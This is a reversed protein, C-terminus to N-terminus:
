VPIGQGQCACPLAWARLIRYVKGIRSSQSEHRDGRPCTRRRKDRKFSSGWRLNDKTADCRDPEPSGQPATIGEREQEHTHISKFGWSPIGLNKFHKEGGFSFFERKGGGTKKTQDKRQRAGERLDELLSGRMESGWGGEVWSWGGQSNKTEWTGAM